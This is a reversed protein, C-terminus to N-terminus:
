SSIWEEQFVKMPGITILSSGDDYSTRCLM